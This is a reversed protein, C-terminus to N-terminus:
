FKIGLTLHILDPQRVSPSNFNGFKGVKEAWRLFKQTLSVATKGEVISCMIFIFSYIIRRM